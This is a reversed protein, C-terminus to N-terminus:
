CTANLDGINLYETKHIKEKTEQLEEYVDNAENGQGEVSVFIDIRTFANKFFNLGFKVIISSAWQYDLIKNKCKKLDAIGSWFIFIKRSTGRFLGHETMM